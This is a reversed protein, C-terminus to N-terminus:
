KGGWISCFLGNDIGRITEQNGAVYLANMLARPAYKLDAAFVVPNGNADLHVNKKTVFIKGFHNLGLAHGAEHAIVSFFDYSEGNDSWVPGRNYLIIALAIDAKGNGDIDSPPDDSPNSPTGNDHEAFVFTLTVGLVGPGFNAMMFQPSMWLGHAIDTDAFGMAARIPRESCSLDRWAAMGKDVRDFVEQQTAKRVAGSQPDVMWPVDAGQFVPGVGYNVGIRGDRRPDGPVWEAGIGRARDNALVLSSSQAYSSYESFLLEAQMLSMNERVIGLETVLAHLAPNM